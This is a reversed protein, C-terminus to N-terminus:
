KELGMSGASMTKRAKRGISVLIALTSWTSMIDIPRARAMTTLFTAKAARFNTATSMVASSVELMATSNAM